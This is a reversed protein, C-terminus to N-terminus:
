HYSVLSPRVLPVVCCQLWREVLTDTGTYGLCCMSLHQFTLVNDPGHLSDASLRAGRGLRDANAIRATEGEVRSKSFRPPPPPYNLLGLSSHVVVCRLRLHRSGRTYVNDAM